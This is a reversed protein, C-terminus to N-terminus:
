LKKRKFIKNKFKKINNNEPPTKMDDESVIGKSELINYLRDIIKYCLNLENDFTELQKKVEEDM